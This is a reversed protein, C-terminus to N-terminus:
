ATLRKFLFIAGAILLGFFVLGGIFKFLGGFFGDGKVIVQPTPTPDPTAIPTGNPSTPPIGASPDCSVINGYQDQCQAAAGTPLQNNPVAQAYTPVQQGPQIYVYQPQYQHTMANMVMMTVLMDGMGSMPHYFYPAHYYHHSIVHNTYYTSRHYTAPNYSRSYRTVPRYVTTTGTSPRYVTRVTSPSRYTYSSRSYGSFSSSRSFSYSSSRFGGSSFRGMKQLHTHKTTKPAPTVKAKVKTAVHHHTKVPAHHQLTPQSMLLLASASVAAFISALM